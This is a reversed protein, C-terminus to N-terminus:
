ENNDKEPVLDHGIGKWGCNYCEIRNLDKYTEMHDKHLPYGVLTTSFNRSGCKPCVRHQKAYNERFDYAEPDWSRIEEQTTEDTIVHCPEVPIFPAYVVGSADKKKDDIHIEEYMNEPFYQPDVIAYRSKTLLKSPIESGTENRALPELENSWYLGDPVTNDDHKVLYALGKRKGIQTKHFEIVNGEMGVYFGKLVKVRDGINFKHKM